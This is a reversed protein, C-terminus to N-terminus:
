QALWKKKIMDSGKEAIMIIPANTNGSTVRPMVSADMVRLNKIGYVRLEPDVVASSDQEPGMKCSGAQHNEAATNRRVACEWYDDSGFKKGECGKIPTENLTIGYKKLAKTKPIKLSFKIGEILTAVDFPDTLYKGFILPYSLPDNNKLVLYGTSKPHLVTPTITIMRRPPVGNKLTGQIEGIEGTKSCRALYGGFFIQIDPHDESANAFKTKIMATTQSLGTSSMVGDRNLMYQMATAWNLDSTATSNTYFSIRFAVHNHLNRGVGPLHHVLPVGVKQLDEKPGIGSLLLLQPSNVAGGSVVVEKRALIKQKQGDGTIVEVGYTQKKAPDVLVRAATTNLMIHLNPRNNAPRLFARSASYRTGNKSTTQAIAFGDHYKGNLDGVRQGLEQGAKLIDMALPPQYPFISVPLLGGVGHYGADMNEVQLNDESKKFYPLVDEYSWGTNGQEAWSDFDRRSGRMYMMGNLVSTGGIVKGRPWSCRQDKSNLCAMEEPQTKYKWDVSSGLFNLFLSPVQSGTPENGGAEVLLVNWDPVESLRSAVVSGGSGGGVVIFDYEREPNQPPTFHGCPDEIDCQSRLFQELLGMFLVFSAGGCSNAVSPGPLSVPCSCDVM